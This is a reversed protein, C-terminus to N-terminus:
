GTENEGLVHCMVAHSVMASSTSQIYATPITSLQDLLEGAMACLKSVNQEECGALVIEVTTM